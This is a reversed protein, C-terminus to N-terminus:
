EGLKNLKYTQQVIEDLEKKLTYAFEKVKNYKPEYNSYENITKNFQQLTYKCDKCTQVFTNRAKAYESALKKISKKTNAQLEKTLYTISLVNNVNCICRVDYSIYMHLTEKDFATAYCVTEELENDYLSIISVDKLLELKVDLRELEEKMYAINKM